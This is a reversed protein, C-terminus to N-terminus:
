NKSNLYKNATIQLLTLFCVVLMTKQSFISNASDSVNGLAMGGYLAPTISSTESQEIDVLICYIYQTLPYTKLCM